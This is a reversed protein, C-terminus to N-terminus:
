KLQVGPAEQPQEKFNGNYYAEQPNILEAKDNM